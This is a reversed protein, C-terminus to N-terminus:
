ATDDDDEDQSPPGGPIGVFPFSPDLNQDIEETLGQSKLRSYFIMVNRPADYIKRKAGNGIRAWLLVIIYEILDNSLFNMGGTRDSRARSRSYTCMPGRCGARYTSATAHLSPDFRLDRHEDLCNRYIDLETINMESGWIKKLREPWDRPSQRPVYVSEGTLVEIAYEVKAMHPNMSM